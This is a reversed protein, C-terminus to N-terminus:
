LLHRPKYPLKANMREEINPSTQYRLVGFGAVPGYHLVNYDM